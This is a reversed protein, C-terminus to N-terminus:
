QVAAAGEQREAETKKKEQMAKMSKMFVSDTITKTVLNVYDEFTIEETEFSRDLKDTLEARDFDPEVMLVFLLYELNDFRMDSFLDQIIDSFGRGPFDDEIRRMEAYGFKLPYTKGDLKIEKTM